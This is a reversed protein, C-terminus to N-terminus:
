ISKASIHHFNNQNSHDLYAHLQISSVSGEDHVMAFPQCLLVTYNKDCHCKISMSTSITAISTDPDISWLSDVRSDHDVVDQFENSCTFNIIVLTSKGNGENAEGALDDKTWLM